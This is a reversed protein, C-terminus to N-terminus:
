KNQENDQSPKCLLYFMLYQLIFHENFDFIVIDSLIDRFGQDTVTSYIIHMVCHYGM